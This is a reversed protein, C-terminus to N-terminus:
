RVNRSFDGVEQFTFLQGEGNILIDVVYYGNAEKGVLYEFLRKKVEDQAKKFTDRTWEGNKRAEESPRRCADKLNVQTKSSDPIYKEYIENGIRSLAAKDNEISKPLRSYLDAERWFQLWNSICGILVLSYDLLIISRSSVNINEMSFEKSLQQEFYKVATTHYLIHILDTDPGM